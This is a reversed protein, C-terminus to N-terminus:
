KSGFGALTLFLQQRKHHPHVSEAGTATVIKERRVIRQRNRSDGLIYLSKGGATVIMLYDM